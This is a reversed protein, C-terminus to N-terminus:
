NNEKDYGKSLEFIHCNDVIEVKNADTKSYITNQIIAKALVEIPTTLLTPAVYQFPKTFALAIKEGIRSEERETLLM